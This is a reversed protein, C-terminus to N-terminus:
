RDRFIRKSLPWAGLCRVETGPRSIRSTACQVNGCVGTQQILLSEIDSLLERSLRKGEPLEVDAVILRHTNLLREENIYDWLGHKAGYHWRARVTTGDCKGIYLIEAKRPALYAYLAREYGWRPDDDTEVYNWRLRVRLEQEQAALSSM